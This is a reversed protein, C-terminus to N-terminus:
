SNEQHKLIATEIKEVGSSTPQFYPQLFSSVEGWLGGVRNQM